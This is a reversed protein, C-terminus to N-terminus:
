KQLGILASKYIGEFFKLAAVVGMIRMANVVISSDIKSNLWNNAIFNAGLALGIIVLISIIFTIIEISKLLDLINKISYDGSTYRAMERNITPIIGLNLLSLWAQLLSFIGILGYSEFGLYNIYIPIFAISMLSM